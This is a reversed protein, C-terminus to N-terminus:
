LREVTGRTGDVRVWDGDQLYMTANGTGVVAPIGLERAVIAAHSLPAGVNTVVAAARPFLPTWGVNTTVAVLIEGAQLQHGEAPDYLLRVKGEAIGASAPLGCVVGNAPEPGSGNAPAQADFIDSRRSSGAAWSFPDFRGRILAPYPPLKSLREHAERRVPVEVLADLKGSLVALFEPLRLFFLADGLGTLAGARLAFMRATFLLRTVESRIAERGRAAQATKALKCEMGAVEKPFRRTYRQWAAEKQAQRRALLGPVDVEALSALQEDLWQPDEAPRPWSVEFESSGRHGYRQLYVDRSMEGQSVQWLGLLPGLSALQEGDASVGSLLLNADEEGVQEILKYRLPRYSNEYHSTGAQMMRYTRRLLPEFREQWLTLLEAPTQAAAIAEQIATAQAPLGATFAPLQRLNRARRVGARVMFPLMGRMTALRPFPILPVEVHEPLNGFFEQSEYNMRQRSMGLAHMMSAFLTLNMYFRGGINGMLPHDGPLPNDFTEELYMQVLSWTLPTMV